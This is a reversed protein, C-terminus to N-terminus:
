ESRAEEDVDQESRWVSELESLHSRMAAQAAGPDRATVAALIARHARACEARQQVGRALKRRRVELLAEGISDHLVLFLENHSAAALARHFALDAEVCSELDDVSATMTTVSEEIRAIEAPTARQAALAAVTVEIVSRVEDVKSYDLEGGHVFNRMSERVTSADVAVVRVGSGSVARVLGKGSLSRIAERIVTRSVGFQQSLEREPPLMAGPRLNQSRISDVIADAVKDALRPKPELAELAAVGSQTEHTM